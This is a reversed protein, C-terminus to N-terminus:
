SQGADTSFVLDSDFVHEWTVQTDLLDSLAATLSQQLAKTEAFFHVFLRKLAEGSLTQGSLDPLGTVDRYVDLLSQVQALSDSIGSTDPQLYTVDILDDPLHLTEEVMMGLQGELIKAQAQAPSDSRPVAFRSRSDFESSRFVPLPRAFLDLTRSNRSLRRAIEIAAPYIEVYKAAGWIGRSPERPVVALEADGMEDGSAILSGIQGPSWAYVDRVAEGGAVHVVEVRDAASTQATDSTTPRILYDSTRTPYWRSPAPVTLDGDLHYLLAGGYRTLDILADYVVAPLRDDEGGGTTTPQTMTLLNAMKTSYQAFLNPAVINTRVAALETSYDGRWLRTLREIRRDRDRLRGPPWPQNPGIDDATIYVDWSVDDALTRSDRLRDSTSQPTLGSYTM